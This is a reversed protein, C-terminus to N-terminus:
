DLFDNKKELHKIINQNSKDVQTSKIQTKIWIINITLAWLKIMQTSHLVM